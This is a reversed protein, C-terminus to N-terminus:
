PNCVEGCRQSSCTLLGLFPALAPDNPGTLEAEVGCPTLCTVLDTGPRGCGRRISCAFMVDCKPTNTCAEQPCENSAGVCKLCAAVQEDANGGGGDAGADSASETSGTAAVIDGETVPTQDYCGMAITTLSLTSAIVIIYNTSRM